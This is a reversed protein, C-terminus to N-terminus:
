FVLTKLAYFYPYIQDKKEYEFKIKSINRRSPKWIVILTISNPAFYAEKPKFPGDM